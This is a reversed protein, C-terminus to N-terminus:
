RAEVISGRRPAATEGRGRLRTGLRDLFLYVVPTTYLTLMQSVILGGIITIGLPQRLSAGEGLGVALPLAGLIAAFTTMLIPRFRLIAAKLIAEEPPLHEGRELQLAFDIMLIANKKVIGILLIVGILAIITLPTNLILLFLTAGIGASPITSLITLPHITSEYLIGLVIYVSALAALILLPETGVSSKFAAATGAFSGQITLPVDLDSMTKEIVGAATGLAVGAPLNFSITSAIRGDQHNVSIATQGPKYTAFATLPVMTEQNTSVATGSSAGSKSGAISNIARNTASDLAVASVASAASTSTSTSTSTSGISVTGAPANTQSTGSANGGSTSVYIQKLFAPTQLYQPALEMVVHYQNLANYITSVQRQGFADYLTNDIQSPTINLRSATARDIVIDSELGGQQLDSSVDALQPQDQLATVIKPIWEELTAPDDSQLTYQYQANSQRGGVRLDQAPALFLQAGAVKSLPRRLRAVVATANIKRESLPKLTIFIFGSNTARGGTFGAVTAVAPDAQVISQLQTLKTKMAAFSISQDAQVTGIILGTDQDPFFGKPVVVFLVVNLIVTLILGLGVLRAHRLAWRLSSEYNRQAWAFSNEMLRLMRNQKPGAIVDHRLLLACLMPTTTLSVLLSIIITISLTEAFESFLRGVLGPMLLIPIFVAILSLSMSLVTFSVEASGRLAAALPDMGDELHRMTNEVVVVADDVVFGTAVTLAMLSLNDLSFGLLYMPGFTGVISIPVAIGPILTARPSRLFVFVVGVVLLIAIFLTRETDGLAARISQSRDMAVAVNISPPLAARLVPLLAKAQDVTKIVNADPSPHLIVLVASKGNFLGANQVNEVSNEVDAVDSLKVAQGNRYAIVLDRYQAAITAQDNTYIQFRQDGQNFYGKPANANAAALAARVDELGIGYKFLPGPQLEVRVAPLASGGLEVSGVGNIQSFQQELLTDASDYLQGPTLTDSSLALILIPADSPNFKQYTPNSRLTSPLDARAAQIAAEVDRAAGDINRDLGFQLTIRTTGVGSQSTMETVDAITGLRRELPEAVTAAMTDPSAGAMQAQVQITPFSIQPLPAVPLRFFALVGSLAIGITLLTTAVPRKIFISSLNL